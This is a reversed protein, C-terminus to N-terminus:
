PPASVSLWLANGGTVGHTSDGIFNGFPRLGSGLPTPEGGCILTGIPASCSVPGAAPEVGGYANLNPTVTGFNLTGSLGCMNASNDTWSWYETGALPYTGDMATLALANTIYTKYDAGRAAQTTESVCDPSNSSTGAQASDTEAVLYPSQTIIPIGTVDYIRSTPQLTIATVLSLAQTPALWLDICPGGSCSNTAPVLVQTRADTTPSLLGTIMHNPDFTRIVDHQTQYVKAWLTTMLNQIDTKMAATEGALTLPDGMWSGVGCEDALGTGHCYGDYNYDDTIAVGNAPAHGSTFTISVVGTTYNITGSAISGGRQSSVLTGNGLDGLVLTGGVLIAVSSDDVPGHALTHTFTLTSGDGTGFAEGAVMTGTTAFQTYTSGWATNLAGITGYETTLYSIIEQKTYNTTRAYVQNINYPGSSGGTMIPESALIFWSSWAHTTPSGSGTWPDSEGMAEVVLYPNTTFSSPWGSINNCSADGRHVTLDTIYTVWNPDYVDIFSGAHGAIGHNPMASKIPESILNCQNELAYRGFEWSYLWPMQGKAARDGPSQQGPGSFQGDPLYGAGNFNWSFVQDHLAAGWAQPYSYGGYTAYHTSLGVAFQSNMLDLWEAFQGHGAPTCLWHRGNSFLAMRYYGTATCAYDNRGGYTDVQAKASVSFGFVRSATQAPSGSDAVQATFSFQGAAGATGTIQGASAMLQLGPPLQGSAVSWIYGPTGGSAQLTVSYPEGLVGQPLSNTTIALPFVTPATARRTLGFCGTCSLVVALSAILCAWMEPRAANSAVGIPNRQARLRSCM